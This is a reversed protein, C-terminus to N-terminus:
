LCDNIPDSLQYGKETLVGLLAWISLMDKNNNTIFAIQYGKRTKEVTYPLSLKKIYEMIEKELKDDNGTSEVTFRINSKKCNYPEVIKFYGPNEDTYIDNIGQYKMRNIQHSIEDLKRLIYTETGGEKIVVERIINDKIVRYIPNDPEEEKIAAEIAKLLNDKLVEVGAMDDDYFITRETTIDFPLKTGNEVVCVVPLRKAHRVALEYMVNPNLGTLNAIVLEAKLLHEIVQKTISGPADIQHAAVSMIGLKDLVPNIVAKILGETKRRIDSNESGIPTIIFCVKEKEKQKETEKKTMTKETEPVTKKESM